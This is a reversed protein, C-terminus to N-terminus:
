RTLLLAYNWRQGEQSMFSLHPRTHTKCKNKFSHLASPQSTPPLHNVCRYKEKTALPSLGEEELFHAKSPGQLDSPSDKPDWAQTTVLAQKYRHCLPWLIWKGSMPVKKQPPGTWLMHFKGPWPDFGHRLLSLALDKVQQALLSSREQM